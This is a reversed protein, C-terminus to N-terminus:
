RELGSEPTNDRELAAGAEFALVRRSRWLAAAIREVLLSELLSSPALEARLQALLASFADRQTLAEGACVDEPLIGHRGANRSSGSSRPSAPIRGAPAAVETQKGGAGGRARKLRTLTSRAEPPRIITAM